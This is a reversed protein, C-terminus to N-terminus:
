SDAPPMATGACDFSICAFADPETPARGLCTILAATPPRTTPAHKETTFRRRLRRQAAQRAYQSAHQLAYGCQQKNRAPTVGRLPTNCWSPPPTISALQHLAERESGPHAHRPRTAADSATPQTHRFPISANTSTTPPPAGSGYANCGKQDPADRRLPHLAVYRTCRSKRPIPAIIELDHPQTRHQRNHHTPLSHGRNPMNSLPTVGARPPTVSGLQHLAERESGPHAHRPRTAADSATPQTHRFPISANTSTTPPPAGSGYANCGKQDPASRRIPHLPVSRTCRQTIPAQLVRTPSTAVRWIRSSAQQRHPAVDGVSGTNGPVTVTCRAPRGVAPTIVPPLLGPGTARSNRRPVLAISGHSGALKMLDRM